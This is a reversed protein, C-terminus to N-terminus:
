TGHRLQKVKAVLEKETLGDKNESLIKVVEAKTEQLGVWEKCVRAPNLYPSSAEDEMAKFMVRNKFVVQEAPKLLKMYSDIQKANRVNNLLKDECKPWRSKMVRVAYNVINEAIEYSHKESLISKEAVSWRGMLVKEAYKTAEKPNNGIHEEAAKWRRKIVHIAYDAAYSSKAIQVEASRKIRKKLIDRAFLYLFRVNTGWYDKVNSVVNEAGPFLRKRMVYKCYQYTAEVDNSAALVEEAPRWRRKLVNKAYLYSVRPHALIKKEGRKWRGKLIKKAYGYAQSAADYKWPIAELILKECVKDKKNTWHRINIQISENSM